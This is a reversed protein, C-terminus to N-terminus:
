VRFRVGDVRLRTRREEYDPLITRLLMWFRTSHNPVVLHCVEHAVVYDVLSVPAMMVRWNFRLEGKSNCSGWRKEQERVLVPPPRIGARSAYIEVREPLRRHAQKRYWSVVARRVLANRQEEIDGRPLAIALFAGHLSASPKATGSSREIKLRYNRGLYAYSEGAVFEKPVPGPGFERFELLQRQIWPGKTKVVEDLRRMTANAPAKLVVGAHPDVAITVTKRRASPEVRYDIISRGFPVHRHELTM